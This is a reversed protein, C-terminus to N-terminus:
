YFYSSIKRNNVFFVRCGPLLSAVMKGLLPISSLVVQPYKPAV